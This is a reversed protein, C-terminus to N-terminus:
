DGAIFATMIWKDGQKEFIARYDVSSRIFDESVFGRQGDALQVAIWGSKEGHAKKPTWETVKVIDFSLSKIVTARLNPERRVRVNEGVIVGDEFADLNEPFNSYVYPAMFTQKGEFKGGFSLVALLEKWIESNPRDLRWMKRFEAAGNNDGFTNRINPSVISMLYNVDREHVAKLLRARFSFFSPNSAAEDVPYLKALQASTTEAHSVSLLIVVTFIFFSSTKPV